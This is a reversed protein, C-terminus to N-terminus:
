RTVEVGLILRNHAKLGITKNSRSVAEVPHLIPGYTLAPDVPLTNQRLCQTMSDYDLYLAECTQALPSITYVSSEPELPRLTTSTRARERAGRYADTYRTSIKNM